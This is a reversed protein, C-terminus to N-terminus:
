AHPPAHWRIKRVGIGCGLGMIGALLAPRSVSQRIHTQKWHEFAGLMGCHNNITELVQALPVDHRQPFLESTPSTDDSGIHFVGDARVKLYRNTAANANTM